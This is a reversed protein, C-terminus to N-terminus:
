DYTVDPTFMIETLSASITEREEKPILVRTLLWDEIKLREFRQYNDEARREISMLCPINGRIRSVKPLFKSNRLKKGQLKKQQDLRGWYKCALGICGPTQIFPAVDVFGVLVCRTGSTIHDAGHLLKGSHLTGYGRQKPRIAGTDTDLYVIDSSKKVDDIAGEYVANRLCDFNTGGGEFDENPDSLLVTFSLLTEDRHLPLHDMTMNDIGFRDNAEYHACFFDLYSMFDPNIGFLESLHLKIRQDFNIEQNQLYTSLEHCDEVNFHVTDYNSNHQGSSQTWSQNDDAYKKAIEYATKAEDKTLCPIVHIKHLESVPREGISSDEQSIMRSNPFRPITISLSKGDDSTNLRANSSVNMDSGRTLEFIVKRNRAFSWRSRERDCSERQRVGQVFAPNREIKQYSNSRNLVNNLITFYLWRRM